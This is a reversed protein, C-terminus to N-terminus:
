RVIDNGYEDGFTFYGAHKNPNLTLCTGEDVFIIKRLWSGEVVNPVLYDHCVNRWIQKHGDHDIPSGDIKSLLLRYGEDQIKDVRVGEYIFYPSELTFVRWTIISLLFVVVLISM